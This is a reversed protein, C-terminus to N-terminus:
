LLFICKQLLENVNSSCSFKKSSHNWHLSCMEWWILGLDRKTTSFFDLISSVFPPFIFSKVETTREGFLMCFCLLLKIKQKFSADSIPGAHHCHSCQFRYLCSQVDSSTWTKGGRDWFTATAAADTADYSLLHHHNQLAFCWWSMVLCVFLFSQVYDLLIWNSIMMDTMQNFAPPKWQFQVAELIISNVSRCINWLWDITIFFFFFFNYIQIKKTAEAFGQLKSNTALFSNIEM